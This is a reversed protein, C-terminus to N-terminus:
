QLISLILLYVKMVIEMTFESSRVLIILSVSVSEEL